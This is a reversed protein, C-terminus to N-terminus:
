PKPSSLLPVAQIARDPLSSKPMRRGDPQFLSEGAGNRFSRASMKKSEGMLPTSSNPLIITGSDGLALAGYMFRLNQATPSGAKGWTRGSDSSGLVTGGDGAVYVVPANLLSVSNLNKLTGSSLSIWTKGNDMTKLITGSDGVAYGTPSSNSTFAIGRLNQHTGSVLIRWTAGGDLMKLITGGSGVVIASDYNQGLVNYFLAMSYLNQTTGSSIKSWVRNNMELVTGSDGVAYGFGTDSYFAAARLAKRTGSSDSVWTNGIRHLITGSDGVASCTNGSWLSFLDHTTGSSQPYFNPHTSIAIASVKPLVPLESDGLITGHAGIVVGGRVGSCVGFSYLAQTSSSPVAVWGQAVASSFLFSFAIFLKKM